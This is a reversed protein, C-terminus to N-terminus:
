LIATCDSVEILALFEDKVIYNKKDFLRVVLSLHKISSKDTSEDVLLSFYQNQIRNTLDEFATFGITKTAKTRNCSLKKMIDSEPCIAKILSVLHDSTRFAIDHETIFMAIRIEAEKKQRDLTQMNKLMKMDNIPVTKKVSSTNKKHKDTNSHKIVASLGGLYHGACFLCHYYTNGKTSPRLWNKFEKKNQWEPRYKHAYLKKKPWGTINSEDSSSM